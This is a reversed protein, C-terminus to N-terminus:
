SIYYNGAYLSAIRAPNQGQGATITQGMVVESVDKPDVKARTLAEKIVIAGLDHAPTNQFVGCFTGIATRCGSLIYVSKEECM